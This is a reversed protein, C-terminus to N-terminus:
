LGPRRRKKVETPQEVSHFVRGDPSVLAAAIKTAGIDIGIAFEQSFGTTELM